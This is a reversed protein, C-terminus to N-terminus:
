KGADILELEAARDQLRSACVVNRCVPCEGDYAISVKM